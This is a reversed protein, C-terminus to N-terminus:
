CPLGDALLVHGRPRRARRWVDAEEARRVDRRRQQEARDLVQRRVEVAPGGGVFLVVRLDPPVDAGVVALLVDSRQQEEAGQRDVALAEELLGTLLDVLD